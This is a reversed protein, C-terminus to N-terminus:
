VERGIILRIIKQVVKIMFGCLHPLSVFVFGCILATFFLSFIENVTMIQSVSMDPNQDPVGYLWTQPFYNEYFSRKSLLMNYYDYVLLDHYEDPTTLSNYLLEHIESLESYIRELIETNDVIEVRASNESSGNGSVVGSLQGVPSASLLLWTCEMIPCQVSFDM